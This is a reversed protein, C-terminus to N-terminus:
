GIVTSPHYTKEITLDALSALFLHSANTFRGIRAIGDSDTLGTQQFALEKLISETQSRNVIVIGSISGLVERTRSTVIEQYEHAVATRPASALFIRIPM